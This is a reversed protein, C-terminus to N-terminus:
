SAGQPTTNVATTDDSPSTSAPESLAARVARLTSEPTQHPLVEGDLLAVPALGCSGICRALGLTFRRDETTEGMAVGVEDAVAQAIADAGKVFCATGTCVTCVHDGPPDFRFLHYFTAVGLVASPPLRLARAVHLLVDHSLYGFLDQAVHLTQILQDQDGHVRRVFADLNAFREDAPQTETM